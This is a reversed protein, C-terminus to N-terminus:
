FREVFDEMLDIENQLAIVDCNNLLDVLRNEDAVCHSAFYWIGHNIHM